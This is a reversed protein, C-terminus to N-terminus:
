SRNEMLFKIDLKAPLIGRPLGIHGCLRQYSIKGIHKMRTLYKTLIRETVKNKYELQDNVQPHYPSIVIHIIHHNRLTYTIKNGIFQAGGDTDSGKALRIM